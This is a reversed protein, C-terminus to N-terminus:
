GCGDEREREWGQRSGGAKGDMEGKKVEEVEGSRKGRRRLEKMMKWGVNGAM